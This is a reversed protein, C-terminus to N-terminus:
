DRTITQVFENVMNCRFIGKANEAAYGELAEDTAIKTKGYMM